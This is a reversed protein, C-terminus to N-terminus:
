EFPDSLGHRTWDSVQNCLKAFRWAWDNAEGATSDTSRLRRNFIVVSNEMNIRYDIVIALPHLVGTKTLHFLTVAACGFREQNNSTLVADAPAGIAERFYSYDQIYISAPDSNVLLAQM